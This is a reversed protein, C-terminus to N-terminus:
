CKIGSGGHGLKLRVGSSPFQELLCPKLTSKREVIEALINCSGGEMKM